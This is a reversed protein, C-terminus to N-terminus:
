FLFAGRRRVGHHTCLLSEVEVDIGFQSSWEEAVKALAERDDAQTAIYAPCVTCEIGCFSIMENM